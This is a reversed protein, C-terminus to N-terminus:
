GKLNYIIEELSIVSDDTITRLTEEIEDYYYIATVIIVDIHKMNKDPKIINLNGYALNDANNDIAYKVEIGTHRLEEFLNEGVFGMGYIAVRKYGNVLLYEAISKGENKNRIWQNLMKMICVNKGNMKKEEDIKKQMKNDMLLIGAIFSLSGTVFNVFLKKIKYNDMKGMYWFLDEGKRPMIHIFLVYKM